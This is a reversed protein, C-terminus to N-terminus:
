VKLDSNIIMENLLLWLLRYLKETRMQPIYSTQQKFTKHMQEMTNEPMQIFINTLTFRKHM